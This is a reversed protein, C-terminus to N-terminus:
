QKLPIDASPIIAIAVGIVIVTLAADQCVISAGTSDSREFIAKLMDVLRESTEIQVLLSADSVRTGLGYPQDKTRAHANDACSGRSRRWISPRLNTSM